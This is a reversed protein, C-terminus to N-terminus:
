GFFEADPNMRKLKEVFTTRKLQLLSAARKKNGHAVQLSQLILRRELDSILTNFDIGAEPIDINRFIEDGNSSKTVLPFDAAELLERDASLAVAMEVANELQRVNGPWDFAMLHKMAEQSVRKVPVSQDSCFKKVFHIILPPLDERRQRLPLISIPIVNLRYYLDERFEGLRVKEDLDENTAAIIRVDVKVPMNGGVKQFEREQLVRLLKVQLDLPMSGVEDLFMTGRNAQEFRGIRHQHAGTFAGKV